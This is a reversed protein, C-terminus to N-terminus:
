RDATEQLQWALMSSCVINNIGQTLKVFEIKNPNWEPFLAQVLALASADSSANGASYSLPISLIGTDSKELAKREAGNSMKLNSLRNFKLLNRHDHWYCFFSVKRRREVNLRRWPQFGRIDGQPEVAVGL